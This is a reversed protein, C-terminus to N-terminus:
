DRTTLRHARLFSFDISKKLHWVWRGEVSLGYKEAVARKEGLSVLKLYDSQPHFESLPVGSAIRRINEAIVPGARVAFVGAPELPHPKFHSTDGAAWIHPHSTSRLCADIVVRGRETKLGTEALWPYPASGTCNMVLAASIRDGSSLEVVGNECATLRTGTVVEIGARSLAKELKRRLTPHSATAIAENADVLCIRAPETLVTQLRHHIALCVEIGALGAGIIIFTPPASGAEMRQIADQWRSLFTEIPRIPVVTEGSDPNALQRIASGIDLSLTDFAIEEGSALEAIQKDPDLATVADQVYDAGAAKCLPQLPVGIANVDWHGAIVGPLAGSYLNRADPAIVTLRVPAKPPTRSLLRLAVAHAHGGGALLIHRPQGSLAGV